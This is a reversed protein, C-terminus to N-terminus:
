RHLGPKEPFLSYLVPDSSGPERVVTRQDHECGEKADDEPTRDKSGRVGTRVNVYVAMRCKPKNCEYYNKTRSAQCIGGAELKAGCTTGTKQMTAIEYATQTKCNTCKVITVCNVNCVSSLALTLAVIAFLKMKLRKSDLQSRLRVQTPM